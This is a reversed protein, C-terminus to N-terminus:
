ESRALPEAGAPRPRPPVWPREGRAARDSVVMAGAATFWVAHPGDRWADFRDIALSGRCRSRLPQPSVVVAFRGCVGPPAPGQPVVAVPGVACFPPACSLPEAAAGGARRAWSEQTFAQAGHARFVKLVRGDRVAVLGADHSVLVDPPAHWAPSVMGAVLLPAGLLRLRTACLCLALLGAACLLLGWGPMAPLSTAAGPLAAVARAIALVVACGWGMPALALWELDLPMLLMAVIGAPMILGSTIPVAVMNALVGYLSARQFHFLAFPATALSALLSSAVLGGLLLATRRWWGAGALWAPMRRRLVAYGAILAAVAAFSMQFSASVLADPRLALVVLAALALGRLSLAHRGLLVAVVVLAAMLFTRLMPVEAGTIGTYFGGGLLGVVLAVQKIPLSLAAWEWLALLFRVAFFLTGLVIGVHLGSPSLLHSLGSDRMAQQEAQAIGSQQGTLLAAAIAGPPGPVSAHTRAVVEARLRAFWVWVGAEDAAGRALVEVPGLAFGAGGQGTFFAARQFDYAGPEAPASPPRLLARVRIRDGPRVAAPDGARQRLRLTRPYPEAQGEWVAGSLTLRTGQPLAETGTVQAELVVARTPLPAVPPALGARLQICAFGAAAALLLLTPWRAAGWRWGAALLLLAGLVLAAGLWPDPEQLLAFYAAIGAGFAVPLWLPAQRAEAALAAPMAVTPWRLRVQAVMRAALAVM